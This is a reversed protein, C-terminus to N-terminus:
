PGTVIQSHLEGLLSDDVGAYGESPAPRSGDIHVDTAFWCLEDDVANTLYDISLEQPHGQTWRLSVDDAGDTEAQHARDRFRDLTPLTDRQLTQRSYGDLGEVDAVEGHRVTVRSTGLGSREGCSSRFTYTYAADPGTLRPDVNPGTTTTTPTEAPTAAVQDHSERTSAARSESGSCGSASVMLAVASATAVRIPLTGRQRNSTTGDPITM